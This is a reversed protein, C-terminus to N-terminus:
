RESLVMRTALSDLLLERRATASMPPIAVERFELSAVMELALFRHADDVFVVVMRSGPPLLMHETSPVPIERGDDLHM